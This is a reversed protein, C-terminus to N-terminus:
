QELNAMEREYIRQLCAVVSRLLFMLSPFLHLTVVLRAIRSQRAVEHLATKQRLKHKEQGDMRLLKM